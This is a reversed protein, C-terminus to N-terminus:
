SCSRSMRMVVEIPVCNIHLTFRDVRALGTLELEETTAIGKMRVGQTERAKVQMKLVNDVGLKVRLALM